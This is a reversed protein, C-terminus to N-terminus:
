SLITIELFDFPVIERRVCCKVVPQFSHPLHNSSYLERNVEAFFTDAKVFSKMYIKTIAPIQSCKPCYYVIHFHTYSSIVQSGTGEKLLCHCQVITPFASFGRWQRVNEEFQQLKMWPFISISKQNTILILPSMQQFLMVKPLNALLLSSVTKLVAHRVCQLKFRIKELLFTYANGDMVIRVKFVTLGRCVALYLM